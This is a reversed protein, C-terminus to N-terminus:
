PYLIANVTQVTYLYNYGHFTGLSCPVWCVTHTHTTWSGLGWFFETIFHSRLGPRHEYNSQIKKTWARSYQFTFSLVFGHTNETLSCKFTIDATHTYSNTWATSDQTLSHHSTCTRTFPSPHQLISRKQSRETESRRERETAM